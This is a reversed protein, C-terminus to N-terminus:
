GYGRQECGGRYHSAYESKPAKRRIEVCGGLKWDGVSQETVPLDPQREGCGKLKARIQQIAVPLRGLGDKRFGCWFWLVLQGARTISTNRQTEGSTNRKHPLM